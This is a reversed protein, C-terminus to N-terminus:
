HINFGQLVYDMCSKSHTCTSYSRQQSQRKYNTKSITLSWSIVQNGQSHDNDSTTLIQCSSETERPVIMRVWHPGTQVTWWHSITTLPFVAISNNKIYNSSSDTPSLFSEQPYHVDSSLLYKPWKPIPSWIRSFEIQNSKPGLMLGRGTHYDLLTSGQCTNIINILNQNLSPLGKLM